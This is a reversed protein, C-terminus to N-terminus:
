VHGSPMVPDRVGQGSNQEEWRKIRHLPLSIVGAALFFSGAIYFTADYSQTSDYLTGAIPGGVTAAIGQFLLMLGFANNLRHLGLMEVVLISRLSAFCAIAMGFVVAYAMLMEYTQFSPSAISAVGATIIAANNVFLADVRPHDSIWGCGVRGVTNMIGILSIIFTASAEDIGLLIARDVLYMFPVFLGMLALFGSLSLVMFTPSRLLSFDLMTALVDTFPRSCCFCYAAARREAETEEQETPWAPPLHTVSAHYKDASEVSAFEKLKLVSGSYFIDERYLPRAADQVSFRRRTEPLRLQQSGGPHAATPVKLQGSGAASGPSLENRNDDTHPAADQGAAPEPEDPPPVVELLPRGTDAPAAQREEAEAYGSDSSRPSLKAPAPGAGPAPSGGPRPTPPQSSRRDMLIRAYNISPLSKRHQGDAPHRRQESGRRPMHHESRVGTLASPRGDVASPRRFNSASTNRSMAAEISYMSGFPTVDEMLKDRARKIRIMLPTGPVSSADVTQTTKVPQLPRFLAGFLACTVVIGAQVMVAGRWGRWKVLSSVLPAMIFTGIGSGCVAIGTALARRKDFYFGAAIVAPLYIMGFGIGGVLGYTIVLFDVSTAYASIFFGLSSIVAGMITVVRFGFKNALASVFPGAILYFGSLISGIWATKSKSEGFEDVLPLLLVGFSFIFGDVIANCMFSAAVIVWGWGGDPPVVHPVQLVVDENQDAEPDASEGGAASERRLQPVRLFQTDEGQISRRQDGIHFQPRRDEEDTRPAMHVGGSHSKDSADEDEEQITPMTTTRALQPESGDHALTENANGM